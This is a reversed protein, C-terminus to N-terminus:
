INPVNLLCPIEISEIRGVFITLSETSVGPSGTNYIQKICVSRGNSFEAEIEEASKIDAQTQGAPNYALRAWNFDPSSGHVIELIELCNCLQGDVFVSMYTAPIVLKNLDSQYFDVRNSM